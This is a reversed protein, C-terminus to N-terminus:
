NGLRAATVAKFYTNVMAIRANYNGLMQELLEPSYPIPQDDEDIVDEISLVTSRLFDKNGMDTAFDFKELDASSKMQFRVKFTDDRFADNDIPTKVTVTHTFAHTKSIKFM